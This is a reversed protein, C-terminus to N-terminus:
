ADKQVASVSRLVVDSPGDALRSPMAVGARPDVMRRVAIVAM